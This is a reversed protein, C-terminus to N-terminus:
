SDEPTTQAEGGSSAVGESQVSTDTETSVTEDGTDADAQVLQKNQKRLARVESAEIGLMRSTEDVSVAEDALAGVARAQQERAEELQQQISDITDGAKFWAEAHQAIRADRQAREAALAAVAERARNRATVPGVNKRAM